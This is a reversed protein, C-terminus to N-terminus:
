SDLIAGIDHASHLVRLVEIGNEIAAYFIVYAGLPFSRLGAELEDRVRGM